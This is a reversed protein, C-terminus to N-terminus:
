KGEVLKEAHKLLTEDKWNDRAPVGQDRLFEMLQARAMKRVSEIDILPAYNANPVPKIEEAQVPVYKGNILKRM